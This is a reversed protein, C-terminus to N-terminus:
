FQYYIFPAVGEFRMADVILITLGLMLGLAWWPLLRLRLALRQGLDHPAAHIAVGFVILVVTLPTVQLPLGPGAGGAFLGGLYATAQAFSEARFFIWGLVVIHFTIVLGLWAPLRPWGEPRCRDWIREIALVGGHLGGWIVFTWKAGHWLGGLLMTTMLNACQRAFGKRNGGLADIYLYDRLWSSLSIHWRRWFDQLSTARYPQNFNLPFRYGLLAALGIAMDSYASFDCYIQVAYGYAAAILDIRSHGAPDFFVPDVLGTSLESAIVAKKFLGWVILVLGMTAADRTLVPRQRFQPLLDSGRVIPGAVLHPFFSMLLTVDLLDAAAIRKKAVDVLYSMAQFTFFSVGVPLVIQMLPLDRAIGAQALLVGLQELFFDYYKFVGLICLNAIVGITLLAKRRGEEEEPTHAILQAAGWNLIASGILLAVFRWDWAGYFVWSALLLLIKRWENDRVSWILAFTALFFLGFTLTPFLM